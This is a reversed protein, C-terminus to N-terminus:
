IDISARMLQLKLQIALLKQNESYGQAEAYKRLRELLSMSKSIIYKLLTTEVKAIKFATPIFLM